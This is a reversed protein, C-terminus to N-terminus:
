IITCTAARQCKWWSRACTSRIKGFRTWCALPANSGLAERLLRANIQTRAEVAFLALVITTAVALLRPSFYTPRAHKM